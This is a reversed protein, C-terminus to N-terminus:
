IQPREEEKKTIVMYGNADISREYGEPVLFLMHVWKGGVLANQVDVALDHGQWNKSDEGYADVLADITARNLSVNLVEEVGRFQVKCVDQMKENGNKDKFQSPQPATESVIKASRINQLESAKAWKGGLGGSKKYNAM